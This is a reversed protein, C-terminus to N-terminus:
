LLLGVVVLLSLSVILVPENFWDKLTYKIQEIM